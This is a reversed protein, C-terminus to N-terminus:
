MKNEWHRMVDMASDPYDTVLGIVGMELYEKMNETENVTWVYVPIEANQCVSILNPSVMWEEILLFDINMGNLGETSLFGVNGYICFGTRYQSYLSKMRAVLSYDMSLFMCNRQYDNATIVQMVKELLDETEHGHLKLEVALRIRGDCFAVVEELTPIHDEMGKQKLVISQLEDATLDYVNINQGSLRTLNADHIVMPVGDKSLLIDVEAYDAGADIAHELAGLTNEVGHASGRHGVVIPSFSTNLPTLFNCALILLSGVAIGMIGYLLKRLRRLKPNNTLKSWVTHLFSLVKEFVTKVTDAIGDAIKDTCTTFEKAPIVANGSPFYFTTLLTLMMPMLATQAVTAVLWILFAAITRLSAGYRTLVQQLTIGPMDFALELSERPLQFLLMWLLLFTFLMGIIRIGYARITQFSRIVAKGFRVREVVMAPLLFLLGCYLLFFLIVGALIGWEGARTKTIEGLIFNPIALSPLLSSTMGMNSIPLMLLAYIAFGIMGPSKLAGFDWLARKVASRLRPVEDMMTQNALSIITAFEFFASAVSVVFLTVVAVLGPLSFLFGLMDENFTLEAGGIQMLLQLLQLLLPRVVMTTIARYVIEFVAIQPLATQFATFGKLLSARFPPAEAYNEGTKM